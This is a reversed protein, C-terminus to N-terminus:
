GFVLGELRVANVFERASVVRRGARQLQAIALVGASCEVQLAADFLGLVRGPEGSLRLGDRSLLAEAAHIRLLEGRAVTDCIPWPNFARVRRAIADAGQTWDIRAEAKDIKHAYTVGEVPQPQPRARGQALEDLAVLLERAGLEALTDHLMGGTTAADIPVRAMRLVPGTDLGAEMRMISVGSQADGALIARQIPAAGRWRPLLSAHINICGLPPIALAEPPLILGYAAVILAEPMWEALARRGEDTRLTAPQAVPLGLRQATSKVPGVSLQRGRGAPRDPQTLVGALDHGAAHLAELAPVAFDPTGAFVLRM